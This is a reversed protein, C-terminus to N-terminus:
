RTSLFAMTRPLKVAGNKPRASLTGKLAPKNKNKRFSLTEEPSYKFCSMSGRKVHKRAPCLVTHTFPLKSDWKHLSKDSVNGILQHSDGSGTVPQRTATAGQTSQGINRQIHCDNKGWCLIPERVRDTLHTWSLLNIPHPLSRPLPKRHWSILPVAVRWNLM